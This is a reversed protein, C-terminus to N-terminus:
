VANGAYLEVETLTILGRPAGAPAEGACFLTHPERFTFERFDM